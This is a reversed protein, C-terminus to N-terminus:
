ERDQPHFFGENDLRNEDVLSDIDREVTRDRRESYRDPNTPRERDPYLNVNPDVTRDRRESYRDPNTPRERDPYLNVNPDVMGDRRGSYRDPNTPRERDPYINVNPDVTRDRRGLYGEGDTQIRPSDSEYSNTTFRRPAAFKRLLAGAGLGALIGGPIYWWPFGWSGNLGDTNIGGPTTGVATTTGEGLIGTNGTGTTTTTETTTTTTTTGDTAATEATKTEVTGATPVGGLIGNIAQQGSNPDTAYGLFAKAGDKVTGGQNKYVYMLPQSFPYRPDDPQTSHLTVARVGPMNKIQDAPAYGIGNSGLKDAVAQTSDEAVQEANSGTKLSGSPFAKPYNAFARRTDSTAPRDIVKIKGTAGAAGPLKSWDTVEGRFIKAFDQLTLNGQYPNDAKVIIAIKQRGITKTGLGQVKEANSLARGIGAIDKSGDIVAKVGADSGAYKVPLNVETGSFQQQFKTQLGENVAAMSSSGDIQVKTGAPVSTPMSFNDVATQAIATIGAGSATLLMALTLASNINPKM